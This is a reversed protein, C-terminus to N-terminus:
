HYPSWRSRCEKGVRREESRKWRIEWFRLLTDLDRDITESTAYTIRYEDSTDLLRLLRRFSRGLDSSCVDSSWDSLCRTHRRRSSFFFCVDSSWDSLCRTHRRRSSFFIRVILEGRQILIITPWAKNLALVM